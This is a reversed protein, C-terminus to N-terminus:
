TSGSLARGKNMQTGSVFTLSIVLSAYVTLHYVCM